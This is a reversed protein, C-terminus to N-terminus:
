QIGKLQFIMQLPCIGRVYILPAEPFSMGEMCFAKQNVLSTILDQQDIGPRM